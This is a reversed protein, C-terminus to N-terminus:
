ASSGTCQQSRRAACRSPWWGWTRQRTWVVVLCWGGPRSDKALVDAKTTDKTARNAQEVAKPPVADEVGGEALLADRAKGNAERGHAVGGNGLDLEGIVGEGRKVLQDVLSGLVSVAGPAGKVAPPQSDAHWITHTCTSFAYM